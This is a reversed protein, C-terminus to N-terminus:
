RVVTTHQIDKGYIAFGLTGAVGFLFATLFNTEPSIQWLFAGGLAAASVFVDRILYYLGFMAAKCNDPALDMILSKRTPEGFEKLGRLIFALVLWEFSRCYMLALPFFTFFVFTILVYPKKTGRDALHAVPIYVLVATAMEISTLLGFQVASVPSEVVKMCWVVVFAYPIQECFRILIDTLLLGKMSDGMMRFVKLPNKEPVLACEDGETSDKKDEILVQQLVLAVGAFALAVAFAIRVGDKEGWAGICLGGLVPGLAMPIRRVLSHMTVGMTRKNNPLAQYILSMTAPLSIASWSIFLVAGVLVAQWSPIAIVLAFGAMAVLNFVLLSRKVGIRDSLYGGPFSYLASLLNDMANLLGISLAGGGLAIMYIPLFREAMREGMGVLIVVALLGVTSRQLGLFGPIRGIGATFTGNM